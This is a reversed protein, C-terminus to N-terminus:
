CVHYRHGPYLLRGRHETFTTILGPISCLRRNDESLLGDTTYLNTLLEIRFLNPIFEHICPMCGYLPGRRQLM